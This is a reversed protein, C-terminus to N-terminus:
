LEWSGRPDPPGAPLPLPEKEWYGFVGHKIIGGWDRCATKYCGDGRGGDISDASFSFGDCAANGLCRAKADELDVYSFCRAYPDVSPTVSTWLNTCNPWCKACKRHMKPVHYGIVEWEAISFRGIPLGSCHHELQIMVYRTAEVWGQHHSTQGAICHSATGDERVLRWTSAVDSAETWGEHQSAHEFRYIKVAQFGPDGGVIRMSTVVSSTGLDVKLWSPYEGPAARWWHGAAAIGDTLGAFRGGKSDSSGTPVRGLALNFVRHVCEFSPPSLVGSRCSLSAVTPTYGGACQPTCASRSDIISGEQCPVVAALAIDVPAACPAEVSLYSSFCAGGLLALGLCSRMRGPQGLTSHGFSVRLGAWVGEHLCCHWAHL